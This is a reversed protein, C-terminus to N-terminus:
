LVLVAGNMVGRRKWDALHHSLLAEATKQAKLDLSTRLEPEGPYKELVRLCFHRASSELAKRSVVAPTQAIVVSAEKTLLGRHLWRLSQQRRLTELNGPFRDPRLSNPNAQILTLDLLQAINLREPPTRYYLLAASKLGEINGGLPVISLYIELIEKKS